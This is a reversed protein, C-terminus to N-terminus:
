KACDDIRSSNEGLVPWARRIGSLGQAPEPSDEVALFQHMREVAQITLRYRPESASRSRRRSTPSEHERAIDEPKRFM